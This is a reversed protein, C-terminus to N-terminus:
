LEFFCGRNIFMLVNYRNILNFALLLQLVITKLLYLELGGRFDIQESFIWLMWGRFDAYFFDSVAITQNRNEAARQHNNM